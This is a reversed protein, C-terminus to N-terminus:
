AGRRVCEMLVSRSPGGPQTEGALSGGSVALGPRRSSDRRPVSLAHAVSSDSAKVRRSDRNGARHPSAAVSPTANDTSPPACLGRIEVALDASRPQDNSATSKIPTRRFQTQKTTQTLATTLYTESNPLQGRDQGSRGRYRKARDILVHLDNPFQLLGGDDHECGDTFDAQLNRSSHQTPHNALAM